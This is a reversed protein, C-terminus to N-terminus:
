TQAQNQLEDRVPCSPTTLEFTFNVNKGQIAIDKIMGLSVIDRHLDPDNVTRLADLVASESLESTSSKSFLGM